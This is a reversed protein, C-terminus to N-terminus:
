AAKRWLADEQERLARLEAKLQDPASEWLKKREDQNSARLMDRWRPAIYRCWAAHDTLYLHFEEAYTM